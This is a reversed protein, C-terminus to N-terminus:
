ENEAEREYIIFYDDKYLRNYDEDRSILMNLKSNAKTIVHTIEYEKFKNEYYTSITSINMYDSFIDQGSYKGDEGKEGNFEPTYLDCRSDIFVPIDNLLLYSGYNYDNYIKINKYDLNEKIWNVAEVPYGSTSVYQANINPVYMYYSIAFVFLITLLEGVTTTMFKMLQETSKKDYKYIIDSLIRAVVMGGFLVLMSIQRRSVFSLFTLGGFMFLDRLKIKTDTFVLIAIVVALCIMIPKDEILTLPLHENISSTTNGKMIKLTYTYPMDGIPTLLGTFICIIMILILWKVRSQNEIKLKYPRKRREEQKIKFTEFHNNSEEIKRNLTVLKEKYKSVSEKSAKKLRNNEIKVRLNLYQIHVKYIIHADLLQRIVFEGIYPLYLVFYFPFVASHVNAIIIPIVILGAAYRKKGTELFKEIFLITLVFLIFTVLQARAAIYDTMLYMQGLTIAFSVFPNNTIKKNTFFLSIGLIISLVATLIYIGAYGGAFDYVLSTILDYLWHPYTYPLNHWSYHDVGDLGYERIGEGMKITYYTDNQFTKPTLAFSFVAICFIALIYFAVKLIKKEKDTMKNKKKLVENKKSEM